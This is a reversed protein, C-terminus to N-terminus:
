SGQWCILRTTPSMMLRVEGRMSVASAAISIILHISLWEYRSPSKQWSCARSPLFVKCGWEEQEWEISRVSGKMGFGITQTGTVEHGRQVYGRPIELLHLVSGQSPEAPRSQTSCYQCGQIKAYIPLTLMASNVRSPHISVIMLIKPRIYPEMYIGIYDEAMGSSYIPM